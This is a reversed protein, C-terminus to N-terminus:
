EAQPNSATRTAVAANDIEDHHDCLSFSFNTSKLFQVQDACTTGSKAFSLRGGATKSIISSKVPNVHHRVVRLVQYPPLCTVVGAVPLIMM